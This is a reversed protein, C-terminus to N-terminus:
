LFVERLFEEKRASADSHVVKVAVPTHDLNGQYVKGYGGEGIVRSESFFDTAVEIEDKTYKRYRKDSSFLEDVIKQKELSEKLAHLEAVQRGYAETALLNKAAEVEKMIELHKAKEESAIKTFTGAREMAVNM